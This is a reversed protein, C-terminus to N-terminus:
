DSTNMLLTLVYVPFSHKRNIMLQSADATEIPSKVETSKKRPVGIKRVQRGLGKAKGKSPDSDGPKVANDALLQEKLQQLDTEGKRLQKTYGVGAKKTLAAQITTIQSTLRQLTEDKSTDVKSSDHIKSLDDLISRRTKSIGSDVPEAATTKKVAKTNAADKTAKASKQDKKDEQSVGAAKRKSKASGKVMGKVATKAKQDAKASEKAKEKVTGKAKGKTKVSEKVDDQVGEKAKRKAKVGGKVDEKSAETGPDDNNPVAVDIDGSELPKINESADDLAQTRTGEEEPTLLSLEDAEHTKEVVKSSKRSVHAKHRSELRRQRRSKRRQIAALEKSSKVLASSVEKSGSQVALNDSEVHSSSDEFRNQESKKRQESLNMQAEQTTKASSAM